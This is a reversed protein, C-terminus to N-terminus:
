LHRLVKALSLATMVRIIVTQLRPNVEVRHMPSQLFAAPREGTAPKPMVPPLEEM